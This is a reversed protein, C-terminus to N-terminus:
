NSANWLSTDTLYVPLELCAHKLLFLKTFESGVTSSITNDVKCKITSILIQALSLITTSVYNDFDQEWKTGKCANM